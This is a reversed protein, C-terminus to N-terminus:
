SRVPSSRFSVKAGAQPGFRDKSASPISSLGVIEHTMIDYSTRHKCQFPHHTEWFQEFSNTELWSVALFACATAFVFFFLRGLEAAWPCDSALLPLGWFNRAWSEKAWPNDCNAFRSDICQVFPPRCISLASMCLCAFVYIFISAAADSVSRGPHRPFLKTKEVM